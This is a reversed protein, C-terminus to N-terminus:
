FSVKPAEKAETAAKFYPAQPFGGAFISYPIKRRTANFANAAENYRTREVSIRNETGALEDQLALFNQNAKLDPYKEVVMLLRSLASTLQNNADIKEQPTGAGAVSARAKTVNTLVENEHAAYGKVTAVLNPILDMRRQLQNEVNAWSKKVQEDLGVLKNRWGIVSGGLIFIILIAIGLGILLKVKGNM